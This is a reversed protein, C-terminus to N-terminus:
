RRLKPSSREWMMTACFAGARRRPDSLSGAPAARVGAGACYSPGPPWAGAQFLARPAIARAAVGTGCGMDLVTRAKDIQMADLYDCLMKEFQPHRARTELRTVIVQLLSDDLRDTTAYPDCSKM